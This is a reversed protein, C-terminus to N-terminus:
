PLTPLATPNFDSDTWGSAAECPPIWIFRRCNRVVVAAMAILTIGLYVKGPIAYDLAASISIFIIAPTAAVTAIRLACPFGLPTHM